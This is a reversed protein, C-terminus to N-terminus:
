LQLGGAGFLRCLNLYQIGYTTLNWAGGGDLRAAATDYSVSVKDVSKSSEPGVQGGAIGGKEAVRQNRRALVLYHATALEIGQSTLDGWRTENVLRKALTMWFQVQADPYVSADTFEPFDRRFQEITM